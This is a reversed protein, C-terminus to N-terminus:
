LLVIELVEVQGFWWRCVLEYGVQKGVKFKEWELTFLALQVSKESM